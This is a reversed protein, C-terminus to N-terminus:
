KRYGPHDTQPVEIIKFTMTSAKTIQTPSTIPKGNRGLRRMEMISEAQRRSDVFGYCHDDSGIVKFM